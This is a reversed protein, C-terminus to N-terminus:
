KQERIGEGKSLFNWDKPADVFFHPWFIYFVSNSPRPITIFIFFTFLTLTCYNPGWSATLDAIISPSRQFSKGDSFFCSRKLLVMGSPKTSCGKTLRIASQLKSATISVITGLDIFFTQIMKMCFSPPCQITVCSSSLFFHQSQHHTDNKEILLHYSWHPEM